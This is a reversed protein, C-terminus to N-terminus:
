ISYTFGLAIEENFFYLLNGAQLAVARMFHYCLIHLFTMMDLYGIDHLFMFVFSEIGELSEGRGFAIRTDLFEVIGAICVILVNYYVKIM